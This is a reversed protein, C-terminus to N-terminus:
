TKKKSNVELKLPSENAESSHCKWKEKSSYSSQSDVDKTSSDFLDLLTDTKQIQHM